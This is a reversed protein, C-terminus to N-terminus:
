LGWSAELVLQKFDELEESMYKQILPLAKEATEPVRLLAKIHIMDKDRAAAFKYLVLYEPTLMRVEGGLFPKFVSNQIAERTWSFYDPNLFDISYGDLEVYYVLPTSRGGPLVKKVEAFSLVVFDLDETEQIDVWQQIATGGALVLQEGLLGHVKEFASVLSATVTKRPRVPEEAGSVLSDLEAAVTPYKERLDNALRKLRKVKIPNM